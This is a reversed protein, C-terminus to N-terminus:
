RRGRPAAATFVVHRYRNGSTVAADTLSSLGLFGLNSRQPGSRRCARGCVGHCRGTCRSANSGLANPVFAALARRFFRITGSARFEAPPLPRNCTSTSRRRTTPSSPTPRSSPSSCSTRASRSASRRRSLCNCSCRATKWTRAPPTASATAAAATTRSSCASISPDDETGFGLEQRMRKHWFEALAEASEVGFGHLYLYDQYRNDKRLQRPWRPPATASPSSSSASCTSSAPSAHQPLLRQPVAPPPRGPAPLHLPAVRAAQGPAQHREDRDRAHRPRRLHLRGAPIGRRPLRDPRQGREARPLLRLRGEAPHLRGRDRPAQPGRLGPPGKRGDAQEFQEDTLAGKKLGWQGLFLANENVFPFVHRPHIDTVVRRGWFPPLPVPNDTPSKPIEAPTAGVAAQGRNRPAAQAQRRARAPDTVVQEVKGGSIADMM